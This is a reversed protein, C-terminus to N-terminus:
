LNLLAIGGATCVVAVIYFRSVIKTEPWGMKEFIHHAPSIPLIRRGTLKFFFIQLLSSGLEVLFVFALFPLLFELRAIVAVLGLGGGLALAGTDGMFVQAPHSNYWLFGLCGGAMAGCFVALESAGPVTAAPILRALAGGGAACAGLGLALAMLLALGAALGDLGDTINTANSMTTVVLAVWVVYLGGLSFLWTRFFPLYISGRSAGPAVAPHRWLVYGVACGVAMQVVLKYRAKLGRNKKGKGTLKLWDDVMGLAAFAATCMLVLVLELSGLDGWLLCGAMLAVLLILGGMTPTGSKAQIRRRLAADEIPTKETRERLNMGALWRIIPKGCALSVALATLAALSARLGVGSMPAPGAAGGHLQELLGHM